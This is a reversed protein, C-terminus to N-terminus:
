LDGAVLMAICGKWCGNVAGLDVEVPKFGPMVSTEQACHSFVFKGERKYELVIPSGGGMGDPFFEVRSYKEWETSHMSICEMGCQNPREVILSIPVMPNPLIQTADDGPPQKLTILKKTTELARNKERKLDGLGVV